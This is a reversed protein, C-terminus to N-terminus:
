KVPILTATGKWLTVQTRNTGAVVDSITGSHVFGTVKYSGNFIDNGISQLAVIQGVVLRPEFVMEFEILAGSRKPSTLLGSSSNILPINPSIVENPNLVNLRGNDVYALGRALQSIYNWTNGVYTSGRTTRGPFNGIIPRGTVSPFNVPSALTELIEKFSAGSGITFNSLGNAMAYGGDFAEIVTVFDKPRRESYASMVTGNFCLPRGIDDYGASFQISRLEGANSQDKQLLNRREKGLNYITFTATQSSALNSRDIHFEVTYPLEIVVNQGGNGEVKLTYKPNFKM